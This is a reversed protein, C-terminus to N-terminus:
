ICGACVSVHQGVVSTAFATTQCQEICLSRWRSLPRHATHEDDFVWEPVMNFSDNFVWEFVWEFVWSDFVEPQVM